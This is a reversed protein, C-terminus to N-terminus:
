LGTLENAGATLMSCMPSPAAGKEPCWNVDVCGNVPEKRHEDARCICRPM